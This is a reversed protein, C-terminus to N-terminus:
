LKMLIDNDKIIKEIIVRSKLKKIRYEMQKAEKITSFEKSFVLKFPNTSKTYNSKGNNHEIIRQTLNTTSGVYYRLNKLSQIIYVHPM